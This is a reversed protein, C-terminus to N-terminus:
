WIARATVGVAFRQSSRWEFQFPVPDRPDETVHEGRNFFYVRGTAAIAFHRALQIPVDGGILFAPAQNTMTETVSAECGTFCPFFEREHHQFLVGAGGAADFAIRHNGALRVRVTGLLALEEQEGSSQFSQGSTTVELDAPQVFEVGIGVRPAIRFGGEIVAVWPPTEDFLRMRDESDDTAFSLGGGIFARPLEAPQALATPAVALVAYLVCAILRMFEM